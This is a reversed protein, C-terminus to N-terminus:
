DNFIIVEDVPCLASLPRYHWARIDGRAPGGSDYDEDDLAFVYVRGTTQSEVAFGRDAADAYLQALYNHGQLDSAEATLRSQERSWYFRSLPIPTLPLLKHTM